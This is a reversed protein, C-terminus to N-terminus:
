SRAELDCVMLTAGETGLLSDSKPINEGTVRGALRCGEKSLSILCRTARRLFVSGNHKATM